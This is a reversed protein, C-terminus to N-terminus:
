KVNYIRSIPRSPLFVCVKLPSHIKNSTTSLHEHKRETERSLLDRQYRGLIIPNALPIRRGRAKWKESAAAPRRTGKSRGGNNLLIPLNRRATRHTSLIKMERNAARARVLGVFDTEFTTSERIVWSREHRRVYRDTLCLRIQWNRSKTSNIPSDMSDRNKM